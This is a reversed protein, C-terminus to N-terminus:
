GPQASGGTVVQASPAANLGEAPSMAEGGLRQPVAEGELSLEGLHSQQGSGNRRTVTNVVSYQSVTICKQTGTGVPGLSLAYDCLRSSCVGSSRWPVWALGQTKRCTM